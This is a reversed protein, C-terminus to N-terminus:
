RYVECLDNKYFEDPPLNYCTKERIYMSLGILILTVIWVIVVIIVAVMFINLAKSDQM